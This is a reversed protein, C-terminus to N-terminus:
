AKPPQDVAAPAAPKVVAIYAPVAAQAVPGPPAFAGTAAPLAGFQGNSHHHHHLAYGDSDSHPTHAVCQEFGAECAATWGGDPLMREGRAIHNITIVDAHAAPGSCITVLALAAVIMMRVHRLLSHIARIM